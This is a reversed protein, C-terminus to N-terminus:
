NGANLLKAFRQKVDAPAGSAKVLLERIKEGDIPSTMIGAKLIDARFEPDRAMAMFGTKLTEARAPPLDPPAAFPAAMFFPLEAFELLALDAPDKVLERAIPVQPHEPHRTVRGFALLPRLKKDRWLDPRGVMIASIDIIQGDLEDRDMALWIEKAGPFGTVLNINLKLMDRAILAFIINTSGARNGGLHLPKSNPGLDALSKVPNRENVILLYADDEYSTLSGLWTLKLPDFQAAPDNIFALQPLARSLAAIITGDREATAALRNGLSIGQAGPLNQVVTRPTGSIFRPLHKAVMRAALDYYGGPSSALLINITRDQYFNDAPQARVQTALFGLLATLLATLRAIAM